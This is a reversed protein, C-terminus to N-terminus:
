RPAAGGLSISCFPPPGVPPRSWSPNKPERGRPIRAEYKVSGIGMRSVHASPVARLRFIADRGGRVGRYLGNLSLFVPFWRSSLPTRWDDLTDDLPSFRM